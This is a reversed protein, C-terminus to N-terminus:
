KPMLVKANLTCHSVKWLNANELITQPLLNLLTHACNMQTGAANKAFNACNKTADTIQVYSNLFQKKYKQMVNKKNKPKRDAKLTTKSTITRTLAELICPKFTNKKTVFSM